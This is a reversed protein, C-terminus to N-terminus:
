DENDELVPGWPFPTMVLSPVWTDIRTLTQPRSQNHQTLPQHELLPPLNNPQELQPEAYIEESYPRINNPAEPGAVFKTHDIIFPTPTPHPSLSPEYPLYDIDDTIDNNIDPESEVDAAPQEKTMRRRKTPPESLGRPESDDKPESHQRPESQGRDSSLGERSSRRSDIIDRRMDNLIVAERLENLHKLTKPGERSKKAANVIRSSVSLPLFTWVGAPRVGDAARTLTGLDTVSIKFIPAVEPRYPEGENKSFVRKEIRRFLKSMFSTPTKGESELHALVERHIVEISKSGDQQRMKTLLLTVFEDTGSDRWPIQGRYDTRCVAVYLLGLLLLSPQLNFVGHIALHGLRRCFNNTWNPEEADSKKTTDHYRLHNRSSIISTPFCSLFRSFTKWLPIIDKNSKINLKELKQRLPDREWKDLLEREDDETWDDGESPGLKKAIDRCGDMDVPPLRTKLLDASKKEAKGLEDMMALAANKMSESLTGFHALLVEEKTPQHNKAPNPTLTPPLRMIAGDHNLDVDTCDASSDTSWGEEGEDAQHRRSDEDLDM